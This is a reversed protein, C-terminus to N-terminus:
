DIGELGLWGAVLRVVKRAAEDPTAAKVVAVEHGLRALRAHREKQTSSVSGGAAKLEVLGLRGAPLYIRLDPEGAAMGTVAARAQEARTRRQGELGAALEIPWGAFDRKKLLASVVEAQLRWEPTARVPVARVAAPRAPSAPRTPAIGPSPTNTLFPPKQLTKTIM